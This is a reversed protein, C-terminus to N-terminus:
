ARSRVDLASIQPPRIQAIPEDLLPWAEHLWNRRYLANAYEDIDDGYGREIASM